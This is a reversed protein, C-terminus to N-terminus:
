ADVITFDFDFTALLRDAEGMPLPPGTGDSAM